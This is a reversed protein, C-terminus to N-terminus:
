LLINIARTTTLQHCKKHCLLPMTIIVPTKTGSFSGPQNFVDTKKSNSIPHKKRVGLGGRHPPSVGLVAAFAKQTLDLAKRTASVNIDPLSSKRAYTAVKATGKEYALAEELGAMIGSFFDYNLFNDAIQDDSFTSQFEYEIESM